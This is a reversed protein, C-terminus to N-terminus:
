WLTYYGDLLHCRPYYAPRLRPLGSGLPDHDRGFLSIKHPGLFLTGGAIVPTLIFIVLITLTDNKIRWIIWANQVFRLDYDLSQSFGYALISKNQSSRFIANWRHDCANVKM